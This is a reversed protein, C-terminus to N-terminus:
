LKFMSGLNSNTILSKMILLRSAVEIFICYVWMYRQVITLYSVQVSAMCYILILLTDVDFLFYAM